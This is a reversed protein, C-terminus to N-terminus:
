DPRLRAAGDRGLSFCSSADTNTASGAVPSFSRSSRWCAGETEYCLPRRADIIHSARRRAEHCYVRAVESCPTWDARESPSGTPLQGRRAECEARGQACFDQAAQSSRHTCWWSEWFYVASGRGVSGEPGVPARVAENAGAPSEKRVVMAGKAAGPSRAAPAPAPRSGAPSCSMAVVAVMWARM